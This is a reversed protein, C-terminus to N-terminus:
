PNSDRVCRLKLFCFLSFDQLEISQSKEKRWGGYWFTAFRRLQWMISYTKEGMFSHEHKYHIM